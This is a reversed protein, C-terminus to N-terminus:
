DNTLQDFRYRFFERTEEDEMALKRVSSEYRLRDVGLGRVILNIAPTERIPYRSLLLDLNNQQIIHDFHAMEDQVISEVDASIAWEQNLSIDRLTPIQSFIRERVKKEAMKTCLRDRHSAVAECIRHTASDVLEGIEQGTVQSIKEAVKNIIFMNYYMAEVSYGDVAFIKNTVLEEIESTSRGDADIIGHGEVWHLTDTSNLANVANIVDRCNGGPKVTYSPLIIQYLLKDLSSEDGEVYIIKRKSGLIALKIEDTIPEDNLIYDVDWWKVTKNEWLCSRILLTNSGYYDVPLYTDHTSVIYVCDSRKEILSTLLPSIISRHLHREPEDLLILSNPKATLIDACILLANREGDSLESIGYQTEGDKSAFLVDDEGITIIINLGSLSFLENMSEIPSQITSLRKANESDGKDVASAIGGARVNESNVLDFMSISSRKDAYNDTWRSSWTSDNSKIYGVTQKKGQATLNTASASFWTRRHALIRRAEEPNQQYFMTM